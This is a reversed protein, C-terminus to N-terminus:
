VSKFKFQSAGSDCCREYVSVIDGAACAAHVDDITCKCKAIIESGTLVEGDKLLKKSKSASSTAKKATTKKTAKKRTTKKKATKKPAPPTEEVEEVPVEVPVEFAEPAEEITDAASVEDGVSPEEEGGDFVRLLPDDVM